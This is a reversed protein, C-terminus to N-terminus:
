YHFHLHGVTPIHINLHSEPVSHSLLSLWAPFDAFYEVPM